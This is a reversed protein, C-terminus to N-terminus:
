GKGSYTRDVISKFNEIEAHVVIDDITFEYEFEDFSDDCFNVTTGYKNVYQRYIARDTEYMDKLVRYATFLSSYDSDESFIEQEDQGNNIIKSVTRKIKYFKESYFMHPIDM